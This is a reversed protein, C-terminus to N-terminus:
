IVREKIWRRYMRHGNMLEDERVRSGAFFSPTWEKVIENFYEDGIKILDGVNLEIYNM